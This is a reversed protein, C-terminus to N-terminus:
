RTKAVLCVPASNLKPDDPLEIRFVDRVTSTNM